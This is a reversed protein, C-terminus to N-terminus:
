MILYYIQFLKIKIEIKRAVSRPITQNFALSFFAVSTEIIVDYEFQSSIQFQFQLHLNM